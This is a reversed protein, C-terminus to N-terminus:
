SSVEPVRDVRLAPEADRRLEPLHEGVAEAIPQHDDRAVLREVHVRELEPLLELLAERGEGLQVAVGALVAVRVDGAPEVHREIRLAADLDRGVIALRATEHLVHEHDTHRIVELHPVHLAPGVELAVVAAREVVHALPEGRLAHSARTPSASRARAWTGTSTSPTPKRSRGRRPPQTTSPVIPMPPCASRNSSRASGATRSRPTSPSGSASPRAPRRRARKPSRTTSRWPVNRSRAACAAAAPTPSASATSSS